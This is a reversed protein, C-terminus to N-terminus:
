RDNRQQSSIGAESFKEAMEQQITLWLEDSYFSGHDGPLINVYGGHDHGDLFQKLMVLAPELYFTDWAGGTIHLKGQLKPGLEPWTEEMILRIDYNKWYEAIDPNIFGTLKDMVQEPNGDKGRPSFVADFSDLQEGYGLVYEWHNITVVSQLADHRSRAVPRPLGTPTWHGNSDKYINVTQFARFDVPDPATSWCGGFYDPYTIQLWLSSWGGSSHGGIFRAQPEKIIRFREEIAPILENVLADGVPGNNASNAFVHHGLPMDPDLVITFGLFPNKGTSWNTWFDDTNEPERLLHYHRGGFGPVEYYAPYSRDPQDAYEFPLLVAARLYVDRGHFDSLLQSRVKVLKVWENEERKKEKIVKSAVLNHSGFKGDKVEVEITESYLNGPGDNFSRRTNDIDILAQVRYSGDNLRNMPKPFALSDPAGFDGAHFEIPEGPKIDRVDIAFLPDPKMFNLQKRPEGKLKQSFFLLVRGTVAESRVSDPFTVVFKSDESAPETEETIATQCGILFLSLFLSFATLCKHINSPM